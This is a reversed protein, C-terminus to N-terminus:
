KGLLVPSNLSYIHTHIYIYGTFVDYMPHKSIYSLLKTLGKLQIALHRSRPQIIVM